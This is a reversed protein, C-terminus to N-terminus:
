TPGWRGIELHMRKAETGGSVEILRGHISKLAPWAALPKLRSFAPFLFFDIAATSNHREFRELRSSSASIVSAVAALAASYVLTRM